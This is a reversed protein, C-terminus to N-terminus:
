NSVPRLALLHLVREPVGGYVVPRAVPNDANFWGTFRKTSYEYWLPNNFVAVYPLDRGIIMQVQDMIKRQEAEDSTQYFSDLLKDLEPNSYHSAAQRTKGVNASYLALDFMFHPTVGGRISNIGVDFDGSKLMNDWPGEEPTSLRGEIGVQTLGEVALQVTNVWDTWGNPVIIDFSIKQGDPTEVFGDGTVDKYGAEALLAKAADINYKSFQGFEKDVEPNNWAHFAAGLGSPYENLTPYGYGAIDVMAQRDMAMSFARRFAIDNFAKNNGPNKTQQNLNFVVMSGAPFWYANHEPDLGVYTKEIDPLFSGFWDLEGKTVVTLAQDNGAIQPFRMCDVFLNGADWYNPNRCQMYEQPTFRTIETMPGSGVPKNDNTFTSPDAVDKWVHEPVVYVQVLKYILGSNSANFDITVNNGDVSVGKIQTWIANLDLEPHAKLMNFTFLVDNATFPQGDSWKVGDRIKFTVATLDDNYTFSEALRYEPKGGQLVNFIVLPEFMFDEVTSLRTSTNFPNFNAVFATTETPFATLIAEAHVTAPAAITTALLALTLARLRM